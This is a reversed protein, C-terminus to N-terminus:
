AHVLRNALQLAGVVPQPVVTIPACAIENSSLARVLSMRVTASGTLVGGALALPIPRTLSLNRVVAAATEGLHRGAEELIRAADSDGEAASGDIVRALGAMRWT